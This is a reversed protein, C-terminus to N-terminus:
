APATLAEMAISLAAIAATESRLRNTGLGAAVFGAADAAALEANDFDGEPGCAILMSHPGAKRIVSGLSEAGIACIVALAGEPVARILESFESPSRVEMPRPALSQKAASLALRRWRLLRESGPSRVLGRACQIPWLETAGLEAAKEVVLDMRPGKIIATALIIRPTSQVPRSSIIRIEARSRGLNSIEGLYERGSPDLVSITDGAKLRAVDRLHHLENREIVAIGAADPPHAIAFRPPRNM